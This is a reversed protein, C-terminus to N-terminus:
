HLGLFSGLRAAPPLANNKTSTPGENSRSRIARETQSLSTGQSLALQITEMTEQLTEMTDPVKSSIEKLSSNLNKLSTEMEVLKDSTKSHQLQKATANTNYPKNYCNNNNNNTERSGVLLAAERQAVSVARDTVFSRLQDVRESAERVQQRLVRARELVQIDLLEEQDYEDDSIIEEESEEDMEEEEEEEQEPIDFRHLHKHYVEDTIPQVLREMHNKLSESANNLLSDLTSDNNNMPDNEEDKQHVNKWKEFSDEIGKLAGKLDLEAVLSNRPANEDNTTTTTTTTTM